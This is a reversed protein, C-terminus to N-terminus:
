MFRSLISGGPLSKVVDTYDIKCLGVALQQSFDESLAKSMAERLAGAFFGETDIGLQTPIEEIITEALAQALEGTATICQNDGMLMNKIDMMGLNGIFNIFVKSLTSDTNIGLAALMKRAIGEKINEIAGSGMRKFADLIGEELLERNRRKIALEEKILQRLQSETIKM